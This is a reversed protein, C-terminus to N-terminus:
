ITECKFTEKLKKLVELKAKNETLFTTRIFRTTWSATIYENLLRDYEKCLYLYHAKAFESEQWEKYRKIMLAKQEKDQERNFLPAISQPIRTKSM